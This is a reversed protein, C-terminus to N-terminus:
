KNFTLTVGSVKKKEFDYVAKSNGIFHMEKSKDSTNPITKM